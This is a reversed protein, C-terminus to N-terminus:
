HEDCLVYLGARHPSLTDSFTATMGEGAAAPKKVSVAVSRNGDDYRRTTLSAAAVTRRGAGVVATFVTQNDALNVAVVLACLSSQRATDVLIGIRLLQASVSVDASKVSAGDYSGVVSPSTFRSLSAVEASFRGLTAMAGASKIYARRFYLQQPVHSLASIWSMSRMVEVKERETALKKNHEVAYPGPSNVAAEFTAPWLTTPACPSNYPDRQKGRECMTLKGPYDEEMVVDLSPRPALATAHTYAFNVDANNAGILLHHPDLAKIRAYVTDLSPSGAHYNRMLYQGFCDDCLYWALMAPHHKWRQIQETVAAWATALAAPDRTCNTLPEGATGGCAIDELLHTIDALLMMGNEALLDLVQRQEDVTAFVWHYYLTTTYGARAQTPIDSLNFCARTANIPGKGCYPVAYYGQILFPQTRNVRLIRHEYDVQVLSGAEPAAVRHVILPLAVHVAGLGPLSGTLQVRADHIGAPVGALSFSHAAIDATGVVRELCSLNRGGISISLSVEPAALRGDVAVLLRGRQEDLVYPRKEFSAQLLPEYTVTRNAYQWTCNNLGNAWSCHEDESGFLGVTGAADVPPLECLSHTANLPRTQAFVTYGTAMVPRGPTIVECGGGLTCVKCFRAARPLAVAGGLEVFLPRVALPGRRDSPSATVATGVGHAAVLLPLLLRMKPRFKEQDM